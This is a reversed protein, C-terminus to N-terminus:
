AAIGHNPMGGRIEVPIVRWAEVKMTLSAGFAIEAITGDGVVITGVVGDFAPVGAIRVEEGIAFSKRVSRLAKRRARETRLREGRLQRAEERTEADREAQIAEDAAAEAARLGSVNADSVLAALGSSQFIAFPPHNFSTPLSALRALDDLHEARAFVYGSLIPVGVEKMRRRLGLVLQRRQGPVPRRIIRIPTWVEFGADALAKALAVTKVGSTQLICWRKVRASGRLEDAGYGGMALLVESESGLGASRAEIGGTL